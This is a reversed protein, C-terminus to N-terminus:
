GSEVAAVLAVWRLPQAAGGPPCSAGEGVRRVTVEREAAWVRIGRAAAISGPSCADVLVTVRSGAAGEIATDLRRRAATRTAPASLAALDAADPVLVLWRAPFAARLAPIDGSVEACRADRSTIGCGLKGVAVGQIGSGVFPGPDRLNLDAVASGGVVLMRRADVPTSGRATGLVYALLDSRPPGVPAAVGVTSLVLVGVAVAAGAALVPWKVRLSRRIPQEILFYSMVAITATVLVRVGFLGWGGVGVRSEDLWSYIPLHFLYVGYSLRGVWVLPLVALGAGIWSGPRVATDILFAVLLALGLYGGRAWDPNNSVFTAIGLVAGFGILGLGNGIPNVRRRPESRTSAAWLGLAAGILLQQARTDTGYFVRDGAGLGLYWAWVASGLALTLAVVILNRVRGRVIGIGAMLAIPWVLYWQEEVALSWTHSIPSSIGRHAIVHWNELYTLVWPVDRRMAAQMTPSYALRELVVALVLMTLLAPMLRRFRRRWFSLLEIRGTRTREDVLLRTILYGSLVFFIDVGIYGGRFLGTARQGQQHYLLVLVVAVARLGDLAPQYTLRNTPAVDVGPDRENAEM